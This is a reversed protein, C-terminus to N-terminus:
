VCINSIKAIFLADYRLSRMTKFMKFSFIAIDQSRPEKQRLITYINEFLATYIAMTLLAM